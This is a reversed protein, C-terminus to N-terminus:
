YTHYYLTGICEITGRYMNDTHMCIYRGIINNYDHEIISNISTQLHQGYVVFPIDYKMTRVINGV